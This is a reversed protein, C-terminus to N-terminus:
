RVGMEALKKNIESEAFFGTHRFVEKGSEDYFAQVPISLIGFRAGLVQDERVNVFVVNLRGAHTKKLTDLIPQMMDCPVCGSAGFEVMSPKGSRRARDVPNDIALAYQKEVWEGDIRIDKLNELNKVYGSVADQQKQQMLFGHISEKVRDFPLGGALEKNSDYFAKTEADSVTLRSVRQSLYSQLIEDDTMGESRIGAAKADRVIVKKTVEQELFFLLGAEAQKRMEAPLRTVTEEVWSKPIEFGDASLLTSSPMEILKSSKLVGSALGPYRKELTAIDDAAASVPMLLTCLMMAGIWSKPGGHFKFLRLMRYFDLTM